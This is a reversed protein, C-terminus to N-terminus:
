QGPMEQIPGKKYESKKSRMMSNDGSKLAMKQNGESQMFDLSTNDLKYQVSGMHFNPKMANENPMSKQNKM